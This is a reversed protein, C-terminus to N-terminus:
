AEVKSLVFPKEENWSSNKPHVAKRREGPLHLGLIWEGKSLSLAFPNQHRAVATKLNM